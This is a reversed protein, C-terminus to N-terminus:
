GVHGMGVLNVVLAEVKTDIEITRKVMNYNSNEWSIPTL